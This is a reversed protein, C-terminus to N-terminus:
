DCGGAVIRKESLASAVEIFYSQEKPALNYTYSDYSRGNQFRIAKIKKKTIKDFSAGKWDMYSNGECNFKNWAAVQEKTDDEFLFILTSNEVCNGIGASTVSLGNYTVDGGNQYNWTVSIIFGKKGDESCLLNKNGFAYSKDTMKDTCTEIYYTLLKKSVKTTDAKQQAFIFSPFVVLLTFFLNRM